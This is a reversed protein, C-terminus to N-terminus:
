RRRSHKAKMDMYVKGDAGKVLVDIEYHDKDTFHDKSVAKLGDGLDSEWTLTKTDGDWRGQWELASGTSDFSWSRYAKKKTDYTAMLTHEVDEALSRGLERVFRGGLTWESKVSGKVRRGEPQWIAPKFTVDTDWTGILRGLEKLEPSEPSPENRREDARLAALSSAALVTVVPIFQRCRAGM